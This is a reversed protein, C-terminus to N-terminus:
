ERLMQIEMPSQQGALVQEFEEKGLWEVRGDLRLVIYGKGVVLSKYNKETYALIEDPGSDLDIWLGRYRLDGLRVQGELGTKVQEVYSEPPVSHHLRRYDLAIEGLQELARMAEARNLWDKLNIMAVVAIVTIVMVVVFERLIAKQRRTM